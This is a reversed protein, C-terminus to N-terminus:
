CLTHFMEQIGSMFNSLENWFVPEVKNVSLESLFVSM